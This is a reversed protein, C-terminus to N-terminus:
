NPSSATLLDDLNKLFVEETMGRFKEFQPSDDLPAIGDPGLRYATLLLLDQNNLSSLFLIYRGGVAPMNRGSVSYLVTRGNPYKVFGGVRDVTIESGEVVSSSATKFVKTVSVTFESYVNEKNELVHAEATKVEGVVIYASKAVPLAPMLALGEDMFM